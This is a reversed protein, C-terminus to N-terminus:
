CKTDLTLHSSSSATHQQMVLPQQGRWPLASRLLLLLLLVTPAQPMLVLVWLCGVQEVAELLQVQKKGSGSVEQQQQQQVWVVQHQSSSSSGDPSATPAAGWATAQEVHAQLVHGWTVNASM